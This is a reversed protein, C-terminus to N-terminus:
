TCYAIQVTLPSVTPHFCRQCPYCPFADLIGAEPLVVTPTSAATLGPSQPSMWPYPWTSDLRSLSNGRRWWPTLALLARTCLKGLQPCSWDLSRVVALCAALLLGPPPGPWWPVQSLLGKGSIATSFRMVLGSPPKASLQPHSGTPLYPWTAHLQSGPCSPIWCGSTRSPQRWQGPWWPPRSRRPKMYGRSSPSTSRRLLFSGSKM